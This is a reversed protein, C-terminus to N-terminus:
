DPIKIQFPCSMMGIWLACRMRMQTHSFEAMNSPGRVGLDVGCEQETLGWVSRMRHSIYGFVGKCVKSAQANDTKDTLVSKPAGYVPWGIRTMVDVASGGRLVALSVGRAM